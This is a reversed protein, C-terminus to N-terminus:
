LFARPVVSARVNDVAAVGLAVVRTSCQKQPPSHDCATVPLTYSWNARSNQWIGVSLAPFLAASLTRVRRWSQCSLFGGFNVTLRVELPEYGARVGTWSNHENKMLYLRFSHSSNSQPTVYTLNIHGRDRASRVALRVEVTKNLRSVLM